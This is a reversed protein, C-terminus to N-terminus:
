AADADTESQVVRLLAATPASTIQPDDPHALQLPLEIMSPVTAGTYFKGTTRKSTHGMAAAIDDRSVGRDARKVLRGADEGITAFTHRLGGPQITPCSPCPVFRDSGDSNKMKSRVGDCGHLRIAARDLMLKFANRSLPAGRQRLREAAAFTQADVSVVHTTDAKEHRFALTGAIGCPDDLRRLVAEGRAIRGIETDHMGTKVRLCFTDRALQSNLARYMRACHDASYGREEVTKSARPQPVLLEGTPDDAPRLRTDQRAWATFSRLAVIRHRRGPKWVARNLLARLERLSVKRLDRRGLAEAWQSLYHGLIDKRYDESLGQERAYDAFAQLTEADLVLAGPDAAAAERKTRYNLPDRLFLALEAEADQESGVDLRIAFRQKAIMREIFFVEAGDVDKVRGGAWKRIWSPKGAM